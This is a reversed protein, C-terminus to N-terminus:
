INRDDPRRYAHNHQNRPSAVTKIQLARHQAQDAPQKSGAAIALISALHGKLEINLQGDAPVLRVEEILGRVLEFAERGTDPDRLALELREVHTRYVLALNPHLLPQEDAAALLEATLRTKDADLEKLKANLPMADAGDVIADVLRKIQREVRDLNTRINAKAATSNMREANVEAVFEKAFVEFLAPEMIRTKLGSLISAELDDGRITLANSCTARDRAGACGFRSAGYKTYNAGCCGCKMLGSLLYRPRQHQWFTDKPLRTDPRTERTMQGQRAKVKDWLVQPVIRLDPVDKLIWAEPPNMRSQRKGSTPNKIYRLRNWILKGIYLENNLIGTGRNVNGNIATPGWTGGSPGPVGEANLAKAISRPSRGNAYDTMIRQIHRVEDHHPKRLGHEIEGNDGPKAVVVYGYSNGGGSRGAEVRGRLGRHTKEGLHKLYLAGMTGSLGIHLESIWGESLTFLRVGAFNLHKFLHAVDEQDRSLRDLSEAVVIDFLGRRADELLEQYAPRLRSAGSMARDQYSRVHVWGERRMREQCVRAQDDISAESQIENSYREYDVARTKLQPAAKM